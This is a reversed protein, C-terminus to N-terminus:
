WGTRGKPPEAGSAFLYLDLIKEALQRARKARIGLVSEIASGHGKNPKSELSGLIARLRRQIEQNRELGMAQMLPLHTRVLRQNLSGPGILETLGDYLKALVWSSTKAEM